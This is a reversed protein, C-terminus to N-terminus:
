RERLSSPKAVTDVAASPLIVNFAKPSPITPLPSNWNSGYSDAQPRPNADRVNVGAGAGAPPHRRRDIALRGAPRRPHRGPRPSTVDGAGRSATPCGLFTVPCRRCEDGESFGTLARGRGPRAAPELRAPDLTPGSRERESATAIATATAAVKDGARLRAPACGVGQRAPGTSRRRRLVNSPAARREPPRRGQAPLPRTRRRESGPRWAPRRGSRPGRMASPRSRGSRTPRLTSAAARGVAFTPM